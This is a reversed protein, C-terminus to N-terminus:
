RILVLSGGFISGETISDASVALYDTIENLLSVIESERISLSCYNELVDSPNKQFESLIESLIFTDSHM